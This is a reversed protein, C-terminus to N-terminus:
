TTVSLVAEKDVTNDHLLVRPLLKL